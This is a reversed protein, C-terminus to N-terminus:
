KRRRRKAGSRATDHGDRAGPVRGTPTPVASEVAERAREVTRQARDSLVGPLAISAALVSIWGLLGPRWHVTMQLTSGGAPAAECRLEWVLNTGARPLTTEWVFRHPPEYIAMRVSRNRRKGRAHGQAFCWTQGARPPGPALGEVAVHAFWDPANRPDALYTFAAQPGVRTHTTGTGFLM